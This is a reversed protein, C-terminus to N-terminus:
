GCVESLGKLPTTATITAQGPSLATINGLDDIFAIKDDSSNWGIMQNEFPENRENLAEAEMEHKEGVKLKLKKPAVKITALISVKCSVESRARTEPSTITIVANGSGRATVKGKKSVKVV